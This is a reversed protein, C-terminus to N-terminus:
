SQPTLSPEMLRAVLAELLKKFSIQLSFGVGFHLRM